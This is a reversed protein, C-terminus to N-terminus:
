YTCLISLLVDYLEYVENNGGIQLVDSPHFLLIM